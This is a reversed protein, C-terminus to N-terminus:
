ITLSEFDCQLLKKARHRRVSAAVKAKRAAQRAVVIGRAEVSGHEALWEDFIEKQREPLRGALRRANESLGFSEFNSILELLRRELATQEASFSLAALASKKTTKKNYKPLKSSWPTLQYRLLNNSVIKGYYKPDVLMIAQRGKFRFGQNRGLAQNGLDALETAVMLDYDPNEVDAFHAGVTANVSPHPWSLKIISTKGALDNRGKNNSLNLECGLANAILTVDESPFEEKLVEIIPLLVAQNKSRTITTSIATVKCEVSHFLDLHDLPTMGSLKLTQLAYYGTLWETTTVIAVPSVFKDKLGMGIRLDEPRKLYIADKYEVIEHRPKSRRVDNREKHLDALRQAHKPYKNAWYGPLEKKDKRIAYRANLKELKEVTEKSISRLWDVDSRDPDDYVIAIKKFPIKLNREQEDDEADVEDEVDEDEEDNDLGGFDYGDFPITKAVLGLRVWWRVRNATTLAQMAAFTVLVIDFPEGDQKDAEFNTYHETFFDDADVQIMYADFLKAIAQITETANIEPMAYPNTAPCDVFKFEKLPIGLDELQMRVNQRKSIFRRVELGHLHRFGFEKEDLQSHSKACFVVKFGKKVLDIVLHSKGYGEPQVLVLSKPAPGGMHRRTEHWRNIQNALQTLNSAREGSSVMKHDLDFLDTADECYDDPPLRAPAEDDDHDAPLTHM